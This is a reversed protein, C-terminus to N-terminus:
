LGPNLQNALLLLNYMLKYLKCVKGFYLTAFKLSYKLFQFSKFVLLWMVLKRYTKFM